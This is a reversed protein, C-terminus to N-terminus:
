KLRSIAQLRAAPLTAQGLDQWAENRVRTQRQKWLNWGMVACLAVMFVLAYNLGKTKLWDVFEQNVRSETLDSQQIKSLRNRDM